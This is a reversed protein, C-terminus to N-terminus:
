AGTGRGRGGAAGARRPAAPGALATGVLGPDESHAAVAGEADLVMAYVVDDSASVRVANQELATFNYLLLPGSPRAARGRPPGRDEGGRWGSRGSRFIPTASGM